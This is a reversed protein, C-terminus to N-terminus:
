VPEEEGDTDGVAKNEISGQTGFDIDNLAPEDVQLAQNQEGKLRTVEEKKEEDTMSDGYLEDVCRETSMIGYQKAKGVTEVQAEFSPNAYQGWDFSAEYDNPSQKAIQDQTKLMVDVLMPLVKALVGVLTDRTYMTTKEKERQSEANDLKKVDIGLTSPSIIGQLCCDLFTTYTMLLGDYKVDGQKVQIENKADEALSAGMPIFPNFVDPKMYSGNDPDRPILSDPIYQKVRGARLSDLWTSLSEDLADFIDGKGEFISEGRDKFKAAKYFKLPVAMIYDGEFTIDVLDRTEELSDMPCNNGIDDVLKYKVYNKGYYEILKYHKKSRDRDKWYDTYFIVEQLKRRKYVFDVDNGSYFEVLPYKSLEPDTCIKFAGDGKVLVEVVAEKLLQDFDIDKAIADWRSKHATDMDPENMDETVIGALKDAILKPLGSHFKRILTNNEPVAAWFRAQPVSNYGDPSFGSMQKYFQELEIPDGRYWLENKLTNVEKTTYERVVINLQSQSPVLGLWKAIVGKLGDFM